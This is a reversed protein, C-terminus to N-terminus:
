AGNPLMAQVYQNVVTDLEFPRWSERPPRPIKGALALEIGEAMAAVDGIPVLHGYQGEKLIERPGSPCDTAVLPAGCSLAEILVGPLGEWRSSLVFVSARAMYAYPNAEFGPMSVDQELGLQAVLTELATREQGEGTILLRAKRGQRVRAFARILTPFDKQATLRGAALVVPPEGPKFWPHELDARAKEHLEPRVVPNYITRINQDRIGAMRVLDDAVGDSVAIVGDAWPYFVRIFWPWLRDRISVTPKTRWSIINRESVLMRTPVGALRWAWLAVINTHVMMSLLAHPRVRRLYRVLAPLSALVRSAQLDVVHVSGELEALNALNPGEKQALLLDVAYGRAAFERALILTVREAGGARMSPILLAFRKASDAVDQGSRDETSLNAVM